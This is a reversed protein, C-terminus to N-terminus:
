KNYMWVCASSEARIHPHTGGLPLMLIHKTFYKIAKLNIQTQILNRDRDWVLNFPYHSHTHVQQIRKNVRGKKDKCSNHFDVLVEKDVLTSDVFVSIDAEGLQWLVTFMACVWDPDGPSDGSYLFLVSCKMDYTNNPTRKQVQLKPWLETEINTCVRNSEVYIYKPKTNLSSLNQEANDVPVGHAMNFLSKWTRWHDTKNGKKPDFINLLTFCDRRDRHDCM